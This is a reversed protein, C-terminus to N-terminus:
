TEKAVVLDSIGPLYVESAKICDNMDRVYKTPCIYNIQKNAIYVDFEDELYNLNQLDSLGLNVAKTRGPKQILDCLCCFYIYPSKYLDIEYDIGYEYVSKHYINHILIASVGKNKSYIENREVCADNGLVSSNISIIHKLTNIYIIIGASTLGHDFPSYDTRYKKIDSHKDNSPYNHIIQKLSIDINDAITKYIKKALALSRNFISNFGDNEAKIDTDYNEEINCIWRMKSQIYNILIETSGFKQAYMYASEKITNKIIIESNNFIIDNIDKLFDHMDTDKIQNNTEFGDSANSISNELQRKLSKRKFESKKREYLLYDDDVGFPYFTKIWTFIERVTECYTLKNSRLRNRLESSMIRDMDNYFLLKDVDSDSNYSFDNNKVFCKFCFNGRMSSQFKSLYPVTSEVETRAFKWNVRYLSLSMIAVVNDNFDLVLLVCSKINSNRLIAVVDSYSDVSTIEKADWFLKARKILDNSDYLKGSGDYWKTGDIDMMYDQLINCSNMINAGVALEKAVERVVLNYIYEEKLKLFVDEDYIKDKEYCYGIDHYLAFLRWEDIFLQVKCNRNNKDEKNMILQSINGMNFFLYVGLIYLNVSHIVHDQPIYEKAELAAHKYQDSLVNRMLEVPLSDDFLINVNEYISKACEIKISPDTNSLFTKFENEAFWIYAYLSRYEENFLATKKDTFLENLFRKDLKYSM